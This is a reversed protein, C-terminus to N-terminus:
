RKTKAATQVENLSSRIRRIKAFITYKSRFLYKQLQTGWLAVQPLACNHWLSSQVKLEKAIYSKSQGAQLLASIEYRQKETIHKETHL